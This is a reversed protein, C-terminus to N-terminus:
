DDGRMLKLIEDTTMRGHGTGRLLAVAEEGRSPRGNKIKAKVMTVFNGDIGFTVDTGPLMGLAKRIEQPITVQGKTTIRNTNGM